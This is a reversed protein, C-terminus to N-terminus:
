LREGNERPCPHETIEFNKTPALEQQRGPVGRQQSNGTATLLRSRGKLRRLGLKIYLFKM